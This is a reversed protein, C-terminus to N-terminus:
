VFQILVLALSISLEAPFDEHAQVLVDRGPANLLSQQSNGVAKQEIRIIEVVRLLTSQQRLLLHIKQIHFHRYGSIICLVKCHSQMDLASIEAARTPLNNM